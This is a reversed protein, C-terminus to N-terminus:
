DNSQRDPRGGGYARGIAKDLDSEIYTFAQGNRGTITLEWAVVSPGIERSILKVDWSQSLEVLLLLSM